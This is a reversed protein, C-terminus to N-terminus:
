LKNFEIYHEKCSVLSGTTWPYQYTPLVATVGSLSTLHMDEIEMCRSIFRFDCFVSWKRTSFYPTVNYVDSDSLAMEVSFREAKNFLWNSTQLRFIDEKKIYSRYLLFSQLAFATRGCKLLERNYQSRTITSAKQTYHVWECRTLKHHNKKAKHCAMNDPKFYGDCSPYMTTMFPHVHDTSNPQPTYVM